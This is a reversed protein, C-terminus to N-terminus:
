VIANVWEITRPTTDEKEASLPENTSRKVLNASTQNLAQRYGRAAVQLQLRKPLAKHM